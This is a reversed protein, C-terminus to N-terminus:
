FPRWEIKLISFGVFAAHKNGDVLICSDPSEVQSISAKISVRRFLGMISGPLCIREDDELKPDGFDKL